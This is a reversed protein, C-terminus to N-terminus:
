LSEPLSSRRFHENQHRAARAEDARMEHVREDRAAVADAHEVRQHRLYVAVGLPGRVQVGLGLEHTAVHAVFLYKPTREFAELHDVVLGRLDADPLGHVLHLTVHAGVGEARGDQEFM